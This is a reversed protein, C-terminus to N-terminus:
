LFTGVPAVLPRALIVLSARSRHGLPFWKVRHQRLSVDPATRPEEVCRNVARGSRTAWRLCWPLQAGRSGTATTKLTRVLVCKAHRRVGRTAARPTTRRRPRTRHPRRSAQRAPRRVLSRGTQRGSKRRRVRAASLAATALQGEKEQVVRVGTTERAAGTSQVPSPQADRQLLQRPLKLPTQPRHRAAVMKVVGRRRIGASRRESRPPQSLLHVAEAATRMM